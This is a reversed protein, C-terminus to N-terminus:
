EVLKAVGETKLTRWDKWEFHPREKFEADAAGYWSINPDLGMVLSDYLNSDLRYQGDIQFFTDLACNFNHASQGWHAQSAGRACYAEQDIKGRGADAVHFTLNKARVKFFWDKLPLLFNPYKNIKELCGPCEVDVENHM